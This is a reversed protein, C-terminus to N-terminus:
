QWISEVTDKSLLQRNRFSEGKEYIEIRSDDYTILGNNDKKFIVLAICDYIEPLNQPPRPPDSTTTKVQILKTIGGKIAILDNGSDKLPFSAQVNFQLLQMQVFLEGLTGLKTQSTIPNGM